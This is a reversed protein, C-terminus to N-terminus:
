DDSLGDGNEGRGLCHRWENWSQAFGAAGAPRRSSDDGACSSAGSARGGVCQCGGVAFSQRRVAEDARGAFETGARRRRKGRRQRRQVAHGQGDRRRRCQDAHHGPDTRALREAVESVLEDVQRAKDVIDNLAKAVKGSIECAKAPRASRAKLKRPPKRAAQASRQALNRVEDAVVAFGMGAEGARAAEVAANLALINTQFAIEDITKIIKAIDDSSVKIADMAANMSQMDGAGKDAAARAQKALENAKQANEANRKTMSAMEELASSTEELSAAQESAGEALTQSASSVQGAASVVESATNGATSAVESLIKTTGRIIVSAMVVNLLVAVILGIVLIRMASVMLSASHNAAGTANGLGTKSIEETQALILKSTALRRAALGDHETWKALLDNMAQQYAATAAECGDLQKLNVTKTTIRRLEDLKPKVTDLSQEAHALFQPNREAQARWGALQCAAGLGIIEHIGAIKVLRNRQFAPPTNTAIEAAASNTMDALYLSCSEMFRGAVAALQEQSGSIKQNLAATEKLEQEFDQVNAGTKEGVAQLSAIGSTQAAATFQKLNGLNTLGLRLFAPARRTIIPARKLFLRTRGASWRTRWM